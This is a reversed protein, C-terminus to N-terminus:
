MKARIDAEKQKVWADVQAQKLKLQAQERMAEAKVRSFISVFWIKFKTFM